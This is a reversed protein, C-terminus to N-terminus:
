GRNKLFHEHVMGHAIPQGSKETTESSLKVGLKQALALFKQKESKLEEPSAFHEFRFEGIGNKDKTIKLYKSVHGHSHQHKEGELVLEDGNQSIDIKYELLEAVIGLVEMQYRDSLKETYSELKKRGDDNSYSGSIELSGDANVNIKVSGGLTVFVMARKLAENLLPNIDMENIWEVFAQDEEGIKNLLEQDIGPADVKAKFKKAVPKPVTIRAVEKYGINCPM